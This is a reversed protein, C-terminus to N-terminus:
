GRTAADRFAVGEREFKIPKSAGGPEIEGEDFTEGQGDSIATHKSFAKHTWVVSNGM